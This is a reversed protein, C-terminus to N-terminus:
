AMEAGNVKSEPDVFGCFVHFKQPPGLSNQRSNCLLRLVFLLWSFDDQVKIPHRFGM